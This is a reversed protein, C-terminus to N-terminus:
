RSPHARTPAPGDATVLDPATRSLSVVALEVCGLILHPVWVREAFGFVWPSSALVIGHVLDLGLHARFPLLKVAGLEYNTFLSYIIATAGLFVPVAQEPGGTAFGFIHPAFILGIGVFYDLMGHIRRAVIKMPCDLGCFKAAFDPPIGDVLVFLAFSACRSKGAVPKM